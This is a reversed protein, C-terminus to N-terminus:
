RVFDLKMFKYVSFFKRWRTREITPSRHIHIFLESKRTHLCHGPETLTALGGCVRAWTEHAVAIKRVHASAHLAVRVATRLCSRSKFLLAPRQPSSTHVSLACCLSIKAIAYHQWLVSGDAQSYKGLSDGTLGRASPVIDSIAARDGSWSDSLRRSSSISRRHSYIKIEDLCSYIM